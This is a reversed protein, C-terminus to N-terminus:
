FSYRLTLQENNILNMNAQLRSNKLKVTFYADFASIVHNLIVLTVINGAARYNDNFRAAQDVGSFFLATADDGNWAYLYTHAPNITNQEYFDRWGSQFQFYKSVLEYYQQSGYEPLIHSFNSGTRGNNFLFPTEREIRNLLDIDVLMRDVDFNFSPDVGMVQARLADLAPNSLGNQDYYNVLWKSYAVVSWNQNAFSEYRRERDRAKNLQDFHYVLGLVETAFYLGARGYKKNTAQGLGPILASYLFAIGPKDRSIQIPAFANDTNLLDTESQLRFDQINVPKADVNIKLPSAFNSLPQAQSSLSILTLLTLSYILKKM